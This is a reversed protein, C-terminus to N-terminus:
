GKLRTNHITTAVFRNHSQQLGTRRSCNWPSLNHTSGVDVNGDNTRSRVAERGGGMEFGRLDGRFHEAVRHREPLLVHRFAHLQARRPDRRMDRMGVVVIRELGVRLRATEGAVLLHRDTFEDTVAAPELRVRHGIDVAALDSADLAAREAEMHAEFVTVAHRCTPDDNGHSELALFEPRRNEVPQRRGQHAMGALVDTEVAKTGLAHRDDPATLASAFGCRQQGFGAGLDIQDAAALHQPQSRIMLLAHLVAIESPRQALDHHRAARDTWKRKVPEGLGRRQHM